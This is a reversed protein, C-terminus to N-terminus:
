APALEDPVGARTRAGVAQAPLPTHLLKMLSPRQPDYRDTYGASQRKDLAWCTGTKLSFQSEWFERTAPSSLKIAAESKEWRIKARLGSGFRAPILILLGNLFTKERL